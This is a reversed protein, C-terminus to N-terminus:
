DASMNEQDPAYFKLGHDRLEAPFATGSANENVGGSKEIANLIIVLSLGPFETNRAPFRPVGYM